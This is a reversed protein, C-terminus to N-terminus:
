TNYVLIHKKSGDIGLAAGCVMHASILYGHKKQSHLDSIKFTLSEPMVLHMFDKHFFLGLDAGAAAPSLGLIADSNDELLNFGFRQNAIQGNIMSTGETYDRSTMTQANLLDSYYSPDLLGFWNGDKAWRAAAALRRVALLQTANFDAVGNISHDPTATSPAVLSYLYKNLEIEVAQMLADRIPSSQAKIQSEIEVLSQVEFAATITQNATIAVRSTTLKSSEFSEEGAGTQKRTASPIGIESVYVTDGERELTGDYEKNVLSPLLTDQKLKSIGLPGWYKKVQDAVDGLRTIESM